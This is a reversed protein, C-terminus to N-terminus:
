RKSHKWATDIIKAGQPPADMTKKRSESAKDEADFPRCASSVGAVKFKDIIFANFETSLTEATQRNNLQPGFPGNVDSLYITREDLRTDYQCVYYFSGSQGAPAQRASVTVALALPLLIVGLHRARM